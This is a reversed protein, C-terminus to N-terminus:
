AASELDLVMQGLRTAAIECYREEIEIGIARRGLDKAARLTTGSGMFPDLVTGTTQEILSAMLPTPKTHPHGTQLYRGMGGSFELVSSREAPKQPWTGLIYIAEWDRRYGNISGFIGSDAPKRWVLVQRVGRPAPMLPSGFVVAPRHSGWAALIADRATTDGDNAIGDHARGGNYDSVSWAIGYPPDTVMVDATVHPLIERCDGHYITIGDQDYYPKM